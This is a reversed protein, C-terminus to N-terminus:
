SPCPTSSPCAISLQACKHRLLCILRSVGNKITSTLVKYRVETKQFLKIAVAQSATIFRSLKTGGSCKLPMSNDKNNSSPLLVLKNQYIPIEVSPLKLHSYCLTVASSKLLKQYWICFVAKSVLYLDHDSIFAHKEYLYNFLTTVPFLHNLKYISGPYETNLLWRQIKDNGFWSFSYIDNGFLSDM